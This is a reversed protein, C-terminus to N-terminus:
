CRMPSATPELRLASVWFRTGYMMDVLLLCSASLYMLNVNRLMARFIRDDDPSRKGQPLCCWDYWVLEVEPHERLVQWTM